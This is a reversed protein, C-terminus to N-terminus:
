ARQYADLDEHVKDKKKQVVLSVIFTVIFLGVFVWFISDVELSSVDSMLQAESPWHGPFFLTWARMFLYSGCFSTAFVVVPKGMCYALFAGIIASLISIVWWGWAADWGSAGSILAFLLTGGFFGATMGLLSIMIWIKRKILIGVLIGLIAGVVFVAVMGGTSNMWGFALGLSVCLGFIFFAVLIATVYPFWQLGWFALLPGIILYLIGLFWENDELWNIYNTRVTNPKWM